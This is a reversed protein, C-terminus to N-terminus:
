KVSRDIWLTLALVIGYMETTLDALPEVRDAAFIKAVWQWIRSAYLQDETENCKIADWIREPEEEDLKYLSHWADRYAVENDNIHIGLKLLLDSIRVIEEHTLAPLTDVHRNPKALSQKVGVTHGGLPLQVTMPKPLRMHPILHNVQKADQVTFEGRELIEIVPANVQDCAKLDAILENRYNTIMTLTQNLLDRVSQVTQAPQLYEAIDHADVYGEVLPQKELWQKNTYYNQLAQKLIHIGTGSTNEADTSLRNRVVRKKIEDLGDTMDEMSLGWTLGLFSSLQFPHESTTIPFNETLVERIDNSM